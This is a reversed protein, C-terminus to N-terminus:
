VNRSISGNRSRRCGTVFRRSNGLLAGTDEGGDTPRSDRRAIRDAIAKGIPGKLVIVGALSFFLAVPILPELGIM